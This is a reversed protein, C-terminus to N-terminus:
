RVAATAPPAAPAVLALQHLSALLTDLDAQDDADLGLRVALARPDLPMGAAQLQELLTWAAGSLLHTDGSLDNYIVVEDQWCRHRLRQGAAIGWASM